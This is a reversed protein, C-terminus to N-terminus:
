TRGCACLRFAGAAPRVRHRIVTRQLQQNPPECSAEERQSVCGMYVRGRRIARRIIENRSANFTSGDDIEIFFADLPCVEFASTPRATQNRGNRCLGERGTRRESVVSFRGRVLKKKCIVSTM